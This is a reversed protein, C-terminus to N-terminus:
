AFIGQLFWHDTKRERFVWWYSHHDAAAIYYDRLPASENAYHQTGWHAEIREPQRRSLSHRLRILADGRLRRPPDVLWSPRLSETNGSQKQHLTESRSEPLASGPHRPLHRLQPLNIRSSLLDLLSQWVLQRTKSQDFFDSEHIETKKLKSCQLDIRSIEHSLSIRELGAQLLKLWEDAHHAGQASALALETFQQHGNSFIFQLESATQGHLRLFEQLQRLLVVAGHWWHSQERTLDLFEVYQHFTHEVKRFPLSQTAVGYAQDLAVTLETGFRRNLEASDQRRVASLYHLNLGRLEEILDYPIDICAVPLDDLWDDIRTEVILERHAHTLWRAGRATPALVLRTRISVKESIAIAQQMMAKCGGYLTVSGAVDLLLGFNNCVHIGPTLSSLADALRHLCATERDPDRPIAVLQHTLANAEALSQASKIGSQAAIRNRSVVVTRRGKHDFIVTPVSAQLERSFAQLPLDPVYIALWM